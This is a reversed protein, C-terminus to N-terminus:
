RAVMFILGGSLVVFLVFVMVLAPMVSPQSPSAQQIIIPAPAETRTTSFIILAVIGVFASGACILTLLSSVELQADGMLIMLINAYLRSVLDWLVNM